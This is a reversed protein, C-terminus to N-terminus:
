LRDLLPLIADLGGLLAAAWLPEQLHAPMIEMSAEQSSHSGPCLLYLPVRYVVHGGRVGLRVNPCLKCRFWTAVLQDGYLAGEWGQPTTVPTVHSLAARVINYEYAPLIAM